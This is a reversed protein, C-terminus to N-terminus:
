HSPRELWRPCTEKLPCLSVYPSSRNNLQKISSAVRGPGSDVAAAGRGNRGQRGRKSATNRKKAIEDLSMDLDMVEAM